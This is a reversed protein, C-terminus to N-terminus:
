TIIINSVKTVAIGILNEALIVANIGFNRLKTKAHAGLVALTQDIKTENAAL